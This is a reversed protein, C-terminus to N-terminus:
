LTIGTCEAMLFVRPLIITDSCLVLKEADSDEQAAFKTWECCYLLFSITKNSQSPNYYNKKISQM